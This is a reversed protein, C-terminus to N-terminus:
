SLINQCVHDLLILQLFSVDHLTNRLFTKLIAMIAKNFCYFITTKTSM